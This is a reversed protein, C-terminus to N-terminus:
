IMSKGRLARFHEITRAIGQDIPTDPLPGIISKLVDVEFSAVSIREPGDISIDADPVAGKMAAVVEDMSALTTSMDSVHAGEFDTSAARAFMEAIDDGLQFGARTRWPLVYPEGLAVAKAALSVVSTEGLDRGVGYVVNPRLGLSSVGFDKAYLRSLEEDTKKYVGYLTSVANDPGRPKAAISSTYILRGGISRAAELMNLHGIVDVMAGAVPNAKCAPIMLAALHIIDTPKHRQVLDDCAAKDTVDLNTWEVNAVPEGRTVLKLRRDDANLDTAIVKRGAAALKPIIWSGIFGSAGTMLVAGDRM